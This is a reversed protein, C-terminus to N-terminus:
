EERHRERLFDDVAHLVQDGFLERHRAEFDPWKVEEPPIEAPVIRGIVRKRDQLEVSKGARLLEKLKRTDRLERMSMTPM